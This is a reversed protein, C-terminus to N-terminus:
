KQDGQLLGRLEGVNWRTSGGFKRPKPLSGNSARVWVTAVHVDFLDAVTKVDVSAANPLADFRILKRARKM